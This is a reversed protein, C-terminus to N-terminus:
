EERIDEEVKGNDNSRYCLLHINGTQENKYSDILVEAKITATTCQNELDYLHLSAGDEESGGAYILYKGDAILSPDVM